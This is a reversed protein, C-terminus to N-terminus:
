KGGGRWQGKVRRWANTGSKRNLTCLQTHPISLFSLFLLFLSFLFSPSPPPPLPLSLPFLLFHPSSPSCPFFFFSPFSSPPSPPHSSSFLSFSLVHEYKCVVSRILGGAHLLSMRHSLEVVCGAWWCAVTVYSLEVRSCM